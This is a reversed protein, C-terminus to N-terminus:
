TVVKRGRKGRTDISDKVNVAPTEEPKTESDGRSQPKLEAIKDVAVEVPFTFGTKLDDCGWIVEASSRDKSIEVSEVYSRNPLRGLVEGLDIPVVTKFRSM